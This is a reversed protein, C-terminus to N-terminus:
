NEATAVTPTTAANVKPLFHLKNNNNNNAPRPAGQLYCENNGHGTTKHLDCYKSGDRPKPQFGKGAQQLRAKLAVNKEGSSRRSWEAQVATAVDASKLPTRLWLAQKITLFSEPLAQIMAFALMTDHDIKGQLIEAYCSNIRGIHSAPNEGEPIVKGWVEQLL